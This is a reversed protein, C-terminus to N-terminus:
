RLMLAPEAGQVTNGWQAPSRQVSLVCSHHIATWLLRGRSFRERCAVAPYDCSSLFHLFVCFALFLLIFPFHPKPSFISWKWQYDVLSSSSVPFEWATTTTTPTSLTPAAAAASPVQIKAKHPFTAHVPLALAARIPKCYHWANEAPDKIRSINTNAQVCPASILVNPPPPPPNDSARMGQGVSVGVNAGPLHQCLHQTEWVSARPLLTCVGFAPEKSGKM